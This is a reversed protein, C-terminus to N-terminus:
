EIQQCRPPYISEDTPSIPLIFTYSIAIVINANEHCNSVRHYSSNYFILFSMELLLADRTRVYRERLQESCDKSPVFPFDRVCENYSYKSLSKILIPLPGPVQNPQVSQENRSGGRSVLDTERRM